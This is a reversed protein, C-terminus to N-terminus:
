ERIVTDPDGSAPRYVALLTGSAPLVVVSAAIALLFPVDFHPVLVLSPVLVAWGQLVPAFLAAGCLYVHVYAMLMGVLLAVISVALSEWTKAVLVDM